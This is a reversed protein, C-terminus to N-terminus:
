KKTACFFYARKEAEERSFEADFELIAAREEFDEFEANSFDVAALKAYDIM